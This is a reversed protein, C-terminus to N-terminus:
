DSITFTQPFRGNVGDVVAEGMAWFGQTSKLDTGRWYWQWCDNDDLWIVLGQASLEDLVYGTHRLFAYAIGEASPTSIPETYYNKSPKFNSVISESM